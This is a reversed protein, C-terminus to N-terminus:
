IGEFRKLPKTDCICILVSRSIVRVDTSHPASEAKGPECEHAKEDAVKNKPLVAAHRHNDAGPQTRVQEHKM